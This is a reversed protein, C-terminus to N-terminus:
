PRRELDAETVDISTEVFPLMSRNRDNPNVRDSAKTTTAARHVTVAIAM